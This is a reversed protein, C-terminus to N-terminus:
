KYFKYMLLNGLETPINTYTTKGNIIEPLKGSCSVLARKYLGPPTSGVNCEFTQNKPNFKHISVGSDRASFLKVLEHNAEYSESNKHYFYRRGAFITRYAGNGNIKSKNWKGTSINFIELDDSNEIYITPLEELLESISPLSIAISNEPCTQISLKRGHSDQVNLLAERVNEVEINSIDWFHSTPALNDSYQHEEYLTNLQSLINRVEEVMESNRFGALYAVSNRTIVLAPPPCSWLKPRFGNEEVTQDILGLDVLNQNVNFVRWPVEVTESLISQLQSWSGTGLYSIADFAIDSSIKDREDGAIRPIAVNRHNNKQLNSVPDIGNKLGKNSKIRRSIQSLQCDKCQMRRSEFGVSWIHYGRVICSASDDILEQYTYNKWDGIQGFQAEIRPIDKFKEIDPFEPPPGSFFMGQLFYSNKKSELYQSAGFLNLSLKNYDYYNFLMSNTASSLRKPTSASRFSIDNEYLCTNNKCVEYILNMSDLSFDLKVLINPDYTSNAQSFIINDDSLLNNNKIIIDLFGNEDSAFIKPPALSHWIGSTLKLGGILNINVGESLPVLVQLSHEVDDPVSLIEVNEFLVWDKPLGYLQVSDRLLYGQRACKNLHSIVKEAWKEHCIISHNSFLSVRIVEKYIQAGDTKTLPIIARAEYKYKRGGYISELEFTAHLLGSLNIEASSDLYALKTGLYERLWLDEANNFAAKVISSAGNNSIKLKAGSFNDGISTVLCLTVQPKPFNRTVISWSLKSIHVNGQDLSKSSDEWDELEGCASTAIRERLDPISWLKKLWASPGTPGSITMWEHIYQSIEAENLNEHATLNFYEFMRHLAKRDADRVLSQSMSYSVYKLKSIQKATPKGYQYDKITLWHNLAKWFIPTFKACLSLKTRKKEDSIGTVECLRHYYNSSSFEDGKRMHEAALSFTLLLASIPPFSEFKSSQWNKLNNLHWSYINAKDWQLTEAVCRGLEIDFEDPDLSVKKAVEIREEDELDMYIPRSQYRGDFFIENIASNFFDFNINSNM